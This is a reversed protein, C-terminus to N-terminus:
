KHENVYETILRTVIEKVTTKEQLAVMRLDTRLDEDIEVILQKMGSM